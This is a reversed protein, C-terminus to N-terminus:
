MKVPGSNSSSYEDSSDGDDKPTSKAQIKQHHVQSYISISANMFGKNRKSNKKFGWFGSDVYAMSSPPIVFEHSNSEDEAGKADFLNVKLELAEFFKNTKNSFLCSVLVRVDGDYHPKERRVRIQIPSEIFENEADVKYVLDESESSPIELKGLDITTQSMLRVDINAKIDDRSGSTLNSQVNLYQSREFSDGPNLDVLESGENWGDFIIGNRDFFMASWRIQNIKSNTVNVVSLEIEGECVGESDPPLLTFKSIEM